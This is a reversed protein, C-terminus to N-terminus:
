LNEELGLQESSTGNWLAYFYSKQLCRKKRVRFFHTKLIPNSAFIELITHLKLIGNERIQLLRRPRHVSMFFNPTVRSFKGGAPVSHSFNFQRRWNNRLHEDSVVASRTSRATKVAQRGNTDLTTVTTSHPILRLFMANVHYSYM